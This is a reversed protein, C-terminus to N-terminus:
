SRPGLTEHPTLSPTQQSDTDRPSAHWRRDDSELELKLHFFRLLDKLSVIGVLHGNEVVLLRSAGTSQMRALAHM